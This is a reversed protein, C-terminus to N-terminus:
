EFDVPPLDLDLDGGPIEIQIDEINGDFGAGQYHTVLEPFAILIGIMVLQLGVFAIGARYIDITRIGDIRRGTVTDVYSNAPTASRRPRRRM